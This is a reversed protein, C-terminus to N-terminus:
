KKSSDRNNAKCSSGAFFYELVYDQNKWTESEESDTCRPELLFFTTIARKMLESIRSSNGFSKSEVELLNFPESVSNTDKVHIKDKIDRVVLCRYIKERRLQLAAGCLKVRHSFRVLWQVAWASDGQQQAWIWSSVTITTFWCGLPCIRRENNKETLLDLWVSLINMDTCLAYATNTTSCRFWCHIKEGGGEKNWFQQIVPLHRDRYTESKFEVLIKIQRVTKM